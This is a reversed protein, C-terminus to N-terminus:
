TTKKGSLTVYVGLWASVCALGKWAHGCRHARVRVSVRACVCAGWAQCYGTPGWTSRYACGLGKRSCTEQM